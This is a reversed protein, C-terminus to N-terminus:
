RELRERPAELSLAWTAPSHELFLNTLLWSSHAWPRASYTRCPDRVVDLVPGPKSELACDFHYGSRGAKARLRSETSAIAKLKPPLLSCETNQRSREFLFTRREPTGWRHSNSKDRVVGSNRIFSRGHRSRRWWADQAGVQLV